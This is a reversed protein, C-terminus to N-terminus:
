KQPCLGCTILVLGRGPIYKYNPSKKHEKSYNVHRAATVASQTNKVFRSYLPCRNQYM